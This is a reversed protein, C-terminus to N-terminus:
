IKYAFGFTNKPSQILLISKVITWLTFFAIRTIYFMRSMFCWCYLAVLNRQEKQLVSLLRPSRLSETDSYTNYKLPNYICVSLVMWQYLRNCTLLIIILILIKIYIIMLQFNEGRHKVHM